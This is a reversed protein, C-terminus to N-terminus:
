AVANLRRRATMLQREVSRRTEGTEAAIEAYDFGLSQMWVIRQQRRSLRRVQGLREWFEAAQAPDPSVGFIPEAHGSADLCLEVASRKLLRLARRRATTALWGLAHAPDVPESQVLLAEWAMQCADDLLWDPAQVNTGLIRRLQPALETYLQGIERQANAPTGVSNEL